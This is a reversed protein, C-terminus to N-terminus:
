AATEPLACFAGESFGSPGVGLAQNLRSRKNEWAITTALEVREAPTFATEFRGRLDDSVTAPVRTVAEALELVLKETATFEDSRRYDPLARLQAETLGDHRALASGIDLCYECAVIAAVKMEALVKLKPDVRAALLVGTEMMMTGALLQPRRALHRYPGLRDRQASAVVRITAIAQRLVRM